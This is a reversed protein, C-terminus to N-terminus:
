GALREALRIVPDGAVVEHGARGASDSEIHAVKPGRELVNVVPRLHRRRQRWFHFFGPSVEIRAGPRIKQHCM